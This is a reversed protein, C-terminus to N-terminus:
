ATQGQTGNALRGDELAYLRDAITVWAERHTIVIITFRSALSRINAVIEAETVPDLSSTVEDLILIDPAGAIARALAIRQRQGGSLRGGMEGVSTEVGLPLGAIFQELGALRIAEMLQADSVDPLGLCINQRITAHFLTLEQAVYGIRGRLACLDLLALPVGGLFIEGTQPRLLGVLLDVLTTKGSGSLGKLVTIERSGITLSVNRLVETQGYAFSVNNMRMPARTDPMMDGTAIERHAEVDGILATMRNYATESHAFQQRLKQLQSVNNVSKILLVGSVVLADLTVNFHLYAVYIVATITLAAIVESSQALMQRAIERSALAHELKHIGAEVSEDVFRFRDMTKLPKLNALLEVTAVSLAKTADTQRYGARKARLVLFHLARSTLLGTLLSFLALRWDVFISLCIYFATQIALAVYQAAMFYAEGARTAEAAIAAAYEGSGRSSYFQWEAAYLARILKQRLRVSVRAASVGAYSLTFFSIIAKLIFGACIVALVVEITAPLGFAALLDHLGRSLPPASADPHTSSILGIAPLVASIGLAECAAALLLAVLMLVPHTGETRLFISIVKRM